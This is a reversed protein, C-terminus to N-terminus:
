RFLEPHLMRKLKKKLEKTKLKKSQALNEKQKKIEQQVAKSRVPITVGENAWAGLDLATSNLEKKSLERGM